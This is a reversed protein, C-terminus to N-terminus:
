KNINQRNLKIKFYQLFVQDNSQDFLDNIMKLGLNEERVRGYIVGRIVSQLSLPFSKQTSM